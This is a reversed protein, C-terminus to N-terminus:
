YSKSQSLVRNLQKNMRKDTQEKSKMVLNHDQSVELLVLGPLNRFM